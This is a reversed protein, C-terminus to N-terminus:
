YQNWHGHVVHSAYFNEQLDGYQYNREYPKIQFHGFKAQYYLHSLLTKNNLMQGASAWVTQGLPLFNLVIISCWAKM